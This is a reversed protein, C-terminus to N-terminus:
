VVRTAVSIPLRGLETVEVPLVGNNIMEEIIHEMSIGESFKGGLAALGVATAVNCAILAILM